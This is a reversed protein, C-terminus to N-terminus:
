ADPLELNIRVKDLARRIAQYASQVEPVNKVDNLVPLTKEIDFAAARLRAAVETSKFETYQLAATLDQDARFYDQAGQNALVMELQKQQRSGVVPPHDPTGITWNLFEQFEAANRVPNDEVEGSKLGIFTKVQDGGLLTYFTGFNVGEEVQEESLLNLARAQDLAKLAVLWRKLTALRSGFSRAYKTLNEDSLDTGAQKLVFRAKAEPSWEKASTVHKYGLYAALKDAPWDTEIEIQLFSRRATETLDPIPPREVAPNRYGTLWRIAALRRNGEVVYYKGEIGPAPKAIVPDGKIFGTAAMASILDYVQEFKTLYVMISDQDRPLSTPLRPNDPDLLLNEISVNELTPMTCAFSNHWTLM